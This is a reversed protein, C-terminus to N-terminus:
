KDLRSLFPISRIDQKTIIFFGGGDTEKESRYYCYLLYALFVLYSVSCVLAAGNIQWLPVLLSDGALMVLLALIGGRLNIHALGRGSFYAGLLAILALSLIGPILLLFPLYMDGFSPGFLWVFLWQGTAAIFLSVLFFLTIFWRSARKLHGTIAPQGSAVTPFIVSAMSAPLLLFVQVLKSVQIYNGLYAASCYHKVFWYDVRYVLFFILNSMLVIVAYRFFETIAIGQSAGEDAAGYQVLWSLWLVLAQGLNIFAYWQLFETITLLRTSFNVALIAILVLNTILGLLGPFRYDAKGYFAAQMMGQLTAAFIYVGGAVLTIGMPAQIFNFLLLLLLFFSAVIAAMLSWGIGLWGAARGSCEQRSIFYTLASDMGFGCLLVLLAAMSIFYNFWGSDAAGFYRSLLLLLFFFSIFNGM